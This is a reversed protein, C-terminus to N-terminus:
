KVCKSCGGLGLVDERPVAYINRKIKSCNLSTHYRDGHNSVYFIGFHKEKGCSECAYYKGGSQNRADEITSAIIGRVSPNLYTCHMDNHYVIANETVYVVEKSGDADGTSHNGTWGKVRLTEERSIVPIQFMLIPIEMRYQVSLDMIATNWDSVSNSCDIGAAGGVIISQELRDEGINDVIHQRIGASSIMPSIYAQQAIEKGVSYLANRVTTQIAMAELLYVLCLVAFFFIPVALAAELTISGKSTFASTREVTHFIQHFHNTLLSDLEKRYKIQQKEYRKTCLPYNRFSM